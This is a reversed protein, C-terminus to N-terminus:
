RRGQWTSPKFISFKNEQPQGMTTVMEKSEIITRLLRLTLADNGRMMAIYSMDTCFHTIKNIDMLEMNYKKYNLALDRSLVKGFSVTMNYIVDLPLNGYITSENIVSECKIIINAVADDTPKKANPIDIWEEKAPSYYKKRIKMEIAFLIDKPSLQEIFKSETRTQPIDYYQAPPQGSQQQAMQMQVVEEYSPERPQGFGM